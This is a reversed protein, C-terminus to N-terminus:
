NRERTDLSIRYLRVLIKDQFAMWMLRFLSKGKRQPLENKGYIERRKELDASWQPGSGGIDGSSRPAGAAGISLGRKPDVGLGALLGATGGMKELEELSKPDVMMALRSPKEKFPTPDTTDNDPDLRSSQFEGKKTKKGKKDKKDETSEKDVLTQEGTSKVNQLGRKEADGDEASSWTGVSWM